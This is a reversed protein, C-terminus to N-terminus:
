QMMAEVRESIVEEPLGALRGTIVARLISAMLDIRELHYIVPIIGFSAYKGDGIGELQELKLLADARWGETSPGLGRAALGRYSTYALQNFFEDVPEDLLGRLTWPEIEGGDIWVAGGLGSRANERILRLFVKINSIDICRRVYAAADASPASELLFGYKAQEMRCTGLAIGDDGDLSQLIEVPKRLYEPLDSLPGGGVASEIVEPDVLGYPNYEPTKSLRSAKWCSLLNDFDYGGRLFVSLSEDSVVDTVLRLVALKEAELGQEFDELAEINEFSGYHEKLVGALSDVPTRALREFWAMDPGAAELARLRAVIYTFEGSL